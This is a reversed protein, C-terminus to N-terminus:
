ERIEEMEQEWEKRLRKLEKDLEIEKPFYRAWSGRLSAASTGPQKEFNVIVQAGNEPIDESDYFILRGDKYIAKATAIVKIV